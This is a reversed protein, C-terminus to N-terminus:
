SACSARHTACSWCLLRRSYEQLEADCWWEADEVEAREEPDDPFLRPDPRLRGLERAFLVTM